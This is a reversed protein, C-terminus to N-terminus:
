RPDHGAPLWTDTKTQSTQRKRFLTAGAALPRVSASSSRFEYVVQRLLPLAEGRHRYAGACGIRRLFGETTLGTEGNALVLRLLREAQASYFSDLQRVDSGPPGKSRHVLGPECDTKRTSLVSALVVHKLPAFPVKTGPRM